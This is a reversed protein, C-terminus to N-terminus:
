RAATLVAAQRGDELRSLHENDTRACTVKVRDYKFIDRIDPQLRNMNRGFTIKISAGEPVNVLYLKGTKRQSVLICRAKENVKLVKGYLTLYKDARDDKAAALTVSSLSLAFVAAFAIARRTINKM